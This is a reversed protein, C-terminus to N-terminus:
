TAFITKKSFIDLFNYSYFIVDINACVKLHEYMYQYALLVLLLFM